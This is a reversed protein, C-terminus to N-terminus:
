ETVSFESSYAINENFVYSVSCLYNNKNTEVHLNKNKLKSDGKEFIEYLLSSNNIVTSLQKKNIESRETLVEKTTQTEIKIPLINQNLIVSEVSNDVIYNEYTKFSLNVPFELWLFNIRNRKINNGSLYSYNYNKNIKIQRIETIDAFVKASAHTYSYKYENRESNEIIGSVLLQNKVVGSGNLVVAKGSKAEIKTIVGDRKAKINCPASTDEIKPKKVKEKVEIDAVCGNINISAWKLEDINLLLDRKMADSDINSKYCGTSVNNKSLYDKIMKESVTEAGNVNVIWIFNSLIFIIILGLLGGIPLGIREFYKSIIFPFGNKNLIHLRVKSKKALIKINKYDKVCMSAKLGQSTPETDWLNIGNQATLNLFREPFKGKAEFYVSGKLFRFFDILM